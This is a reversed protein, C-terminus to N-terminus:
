KHYQFSLNLMKSLFIKGAYSIPFIFKVNKSLFIEHINYM